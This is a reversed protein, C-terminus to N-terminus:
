CEFYVKVYQGPVDTKFWLYGYFSDEVYGRSQSVFYDETEDGREKFYNIEEKSLTVLKATEWHIGSCGLDSNKAELQEILRKLRGNLMAIKKIEKYINM